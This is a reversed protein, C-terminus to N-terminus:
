VAAPGPPVSVREVLKFSVDLTHKFKSDEQKPKVIASIAPM